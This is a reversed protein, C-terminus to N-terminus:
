AFGYSSVATTSSVAEIVTVASMASTSATIGPEDLDKDQKETKFDDAARDEDEEEDLNGSGHDAGFGDTEEDDVADDSDSASSRPKKRKRGAAKAGTAARAKKASAAANGPPLKQVAAFLNPTKLTVAM